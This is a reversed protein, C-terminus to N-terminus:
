VSIRLYTFSLASPLQIIERHLLLYSRLCTSNCVRMHLPGCLSIVSNTRVSLHCSFQPPRLLLKRTLTFTTPLHPVDDVTERVVGFQPQAESFPRPTFTLVTKNELLYEYVFTRVTSYNPPSTKTLTV